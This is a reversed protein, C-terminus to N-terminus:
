VTLVVKGCAAGSELHRIAERVEGLPFARDVVPTLRGAEILGTLTAMVEQRAPPSFDLPPLQKSFPTMAMLRLFRPLNGFGRGATAGFGDHGILVYRGTPALARRVEFFPHNGPVDVIADYREGARTFDEREADLVHDAGLSRLPELKATVDVATVEAGFAKALQVAFTGVGGGAGNVLVRRGPQVNAQDRVATLAILGSSPVAAAQEFTLRAPKPALGAEPAAAYEAYAGGNHWQFGTISEGYVEDGVRFRGARVGTAEVRGALDTGPVRQRPRRLGAGMVRLVYPRGRVVHWVDPHVSAAHVRVLVEREGVAPREVERLALADVPGYRDQVIAKM